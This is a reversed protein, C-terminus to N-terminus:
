LLFVAALLNTALVSKGIQVFSPFHPSYFEMPYEHDAKYHFITGAEQAFYSNQLGTSLEDVQNWKEKLGSFIM